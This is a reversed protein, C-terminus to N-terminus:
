WGEPLDVFYGAIWKGEPRIEYDVILRRRKGVAVSVPYSADAIPRGDPRYQYCLLRDEIDWRRFDSDDTMVMSVSIMRRDAYTLIPTSGHRDLHAPSTSRADRVNTKVAEDWTRGGDRSETKWFYGDRVGNERIIGVIRGPEVELVVWEDGVFGQRNAIESLEWTRGGDSSRAAISGNGPAKYIPILLDGSALVIPAGRTRANLEDIPQPRAWTSGGDGSCITMTRSVLDKTYTNYCVMLRGDPLQTVAANRDDVGPEDVVTRAPAWTQGDDQSFTGMIKGTPSFGHVGDDRFVCVLREKGARAVWPWGPYGGRYVIVDPKSKVGTAPEAASAKRTLPGGNGGLTMVTTCCATRRLFDRRKLNGSM